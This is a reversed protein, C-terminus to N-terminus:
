FYLTLQSEAQSARHLARQSRFELVSASRRVSRYCRVFDVVRGYVGNAGIFLQCQTVQAM